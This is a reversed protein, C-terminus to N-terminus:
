WLKKLIPLRYLIASSVTSLILAYLFIIGEGIIMPLVDPYIGFGKNLLNLWFTHIIYIGLSYKSICHIFQNNKIRIKGTAFLKIILMTELIMFANTQSTTGLFYSLLLYGIIGIMGGIYIYKDKVIDTYVLYYGILYMFLYHFSSLYFTTIKIKFIENLTPVVVSLIFLMLLTFKATPLDTNEVFKRLIPTMIYLGVLMYLYWMHAWTKEQFLNFLSEYLLKFLHSTGDNFLNEIVCYVFGFIALISLMKVIYKKIKGINIDRQPNLLLCGSIMIFCPVAFRTLAQLIVCDIFWRIGSLNVSDAGDTWGAIVHIMVVSMCAVARLVIIWEIKHHTKTTAKSAVSKIEEMEINQRM